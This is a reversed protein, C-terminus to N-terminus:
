KSFFIDRYLCEVKEKSNNSDTFLALFNINGKLSPHHQELIELVNVKVRKPGAADELAKRLDEVRQGGRGIVIGPRATHVNVSLDQTSREIDVGSIGADSYQTEILKRISADAFVQAAYSSGKAAFWKAQWDRVPEQHGPVSIGLRFGIPHTKHGM